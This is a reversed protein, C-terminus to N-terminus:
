VGARQAQDLGSRSGIARLHPVPRVVCKGSQRGALAVVTIPILLGEFVLSKYGEIGARVLNPLFAVFLWPALSRFALAWTSKAHARNTYANLCGSWVLGLALAGLPVGAAGFNLYWGTAHHITYGQGARAGVSTAYYAYIDPPRNEWLLRPVLSAALSVFSQGLVPTIHYAMAGYMSFHAAFPENSTNVLGYSDGLLSSFDLNAFQEAVQSLPYARFHDILWIGCMGATITAAVPLLRLRRCNYLYLLFGALGASMPENKNGLVFNFSYLGGMVALYAPVTWIRREGEVLRPKKGSCVTAFGLAAAMLAARNLVQQLSFYPSSSPDLASEARTAKYGSLGLQLAEGLYPRILLYSVLGASAAFLLIYVHRLCLPRGPVERPSGPRAVFLLTIEVVIIFLGYYVLTRFYDDDLNVAFMKAELYGYLRGSSGGLKDTILSWAGYLSWYYLVGIGLLISVNRTRVWLAMALTVIVVTACTLVEYYEM